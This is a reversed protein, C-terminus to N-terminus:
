EGVCLPFLASGKGFLYTDAGNGGSLIDNGADGNLIDNGDEGNLVDNGNGGNLIDNGARGSLTDNGDAGFLVDNSVYGTLIDNANSGILAKSKITEINWITNDSFQINEIAYATTADGTFYNSVRLSDTTGTIILILDNTSRQVTIDTPTIGAGLLIKDVNSNLTDADYNNIIDQGSGRGFLYADAGNGGSLTDNGNGGNLIDNGDSGSLTDNGALGLVSAPVTFRLAANWYVGTQGTITNLGDFAATGAGKDLIVGADTPKMLYSGVSVTNVILNRDQSNIVADNAFVIDIKNDQGVPM